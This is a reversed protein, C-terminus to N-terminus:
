VRRHFMSSRGRWVCYALIRNELHIAGCSKGVLFNHGLELGTLETM